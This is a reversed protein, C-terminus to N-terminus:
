EEKVSIVAGEAVCKIGECIHFTDGASIIDSDNDPVLFEFEIDSENNSNMETINFVISRYSNDKTIHILPAYKTGLDLYNRSRGIGLPYWKILAHYFTQRGM